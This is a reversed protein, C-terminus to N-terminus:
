FCGSAKSLILNTRMLKIIIYRQGGNNVDYMQNTDTGVEDVFLFYQPRSLHHRIHYGAAEEETNLISGYINIFYYYSKDILTDVKADVMADYVRDYM